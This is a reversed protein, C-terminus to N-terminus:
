IFVIKEKEKSDIEACEFPSTYALPVPHEISIYIQNNGKIQENNFWEERKNNNQDCIAFDTTFM